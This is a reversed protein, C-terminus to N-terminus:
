KEQTCILYVPNRARMMHYSGVAHAKAISVQVIDVDDLLLERVCALAEALTELTIAAMCLRVHPNRAHATRVIQSLWGSSGGVFVCDPMPLGDLADPAEGEVVALNPLRFRRKNEELLAIAEPSREIAFVRGASAARAAEVSVSGTGAGVDWVTDTPSIRMKCIALERVEEKTMPVKGRVFDDDALHPGAPTVCLPHDNEVLMVCLSAFSCGCLEEATGRVIREGDYSLNEGVSVRVDALGRSVLAACVSAATNEGGLLVFTKAHCQVSGAVDCDRGHVSVVHADQWPVRLQACLYSLSSIGPIVSVDLDDLRDYLATAGSYFGVDGSMVVSAVRADSEHLIEAIRSTAVCAVKHGRYGDLADMLRGSGIVLESQELADRAAQTLTAPNGMGVGIVFVKGVMASRWCGIRRM